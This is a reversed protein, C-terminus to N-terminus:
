EWRFAHPGRAAPTQARPVGSDARTSHKSDPRRGRRLGVCQGQGQAPPTRRAALLAAKSRPARAAPRPPADGVRRTGGTVLLRVGLPGAPWMTDAKHGKETSPSPLLSCFLVKSPVEFTCEAM